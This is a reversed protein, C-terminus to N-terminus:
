FASRLMVFVLVGTVSVYLWVPLTFRALKRHAAFRGRLANFLTVLVMPVLAISAVVHTVLLAIYPGKYPAGEPYRTDGHVFHYALYGIFFLTSAAFATLMLARHLNQRKARIAFYGMVQAAAAVANMSANVVPMFALRATDTGTRDRLYLVWTIAGVAVISIVAVAFYLNRDSAPAGGGDANRSSIADEAV